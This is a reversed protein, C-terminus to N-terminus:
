KLLFVSLDLLIPLSLCFIGFALWNMSRNFCYNRTKLEFIEQELDEIKKLMKDILEAVFEQSLKVQNINEKTQKATM